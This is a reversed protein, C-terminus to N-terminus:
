TFNKAHLIIASNVAFAVTSSLVTYDEGQCSGKDPIKESAHLGGGEAVM